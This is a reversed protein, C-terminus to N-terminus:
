CLAILFHPLKVSAHQLIITSFYEADKNTSTIQQTKLSADLTSYFGQFEYVDQIRVPLCKMNKPMVYCSPLCLAFDEHQTHPLM